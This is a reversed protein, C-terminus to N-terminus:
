RRRRHRLCQGARRWLRVSLYRQRKSRGDRGIRRRGGACRRARWFRDAPRRGRHRDAHARVDDLTWHVGGAFEFREVTRNGLGGTITLVDTGNGLDIILTDGDRRLILAEPDVTAGFVVRDITGNDVQEEIRDLNYEVGFAYSDGRTGGILVDDGHRGDLVNEQDMVGTLINDGRNGGEINLVQEVERITMTSGDYFRFLEVGQASSQFQNRVRLTDPRGAIGVVLDDGDRTFEINDRTIDGGLEVTDYVPDPVHRRDDWRAQERQDDIVDNGYGADFVYTDGGDRGVLTDDGARGDIKEAFNSGYIVESAASGILDIDEPNLDTHVMTGDAFIFEEVAFGQKFERVYQNELVREEGTSKLRIILDLATRDFEVDGFSINRLEVRDDGGSDLITDSGHLPQFVYIHGDGMGVLRDDGLGGDIFDAVDFGYVTDSGDTGALDVYHQLLKTWQWSTGDGFTIEEIRNIYGIFPFSELYDTLVVGDDTGRIMLRLTDSLFGYIADDGDTAGARLVLQMMREIDISAGGDFVFREIMFPSVYDFELSPDFEGLAGPMPNRMGWFQKEITLSDGTALGDTGLIEITLDDSDGERLFRMNSLRLGEGFYIYDVGGTLPGIAAQAATNWFDTEEGIVDQGGNANYFYYDGGAGGRMVDNGAGGRLVDASGSGIIVDNTDEERSVEMSIRFRDYITGDGFVIHNVGSDRRGSQMLPNLEGLFHDTVRVSKDQAVYSILLDQGDRELVVDDPTVGTLRLDDRQGSDYDTITDHGDLGGAFYADEGAGGTLTQNGGGLYIYDNGSTGAVSLDADDGPQRLRSEDLQMAYLVAALDLPSQTREFAPILNQIVFVKDARLSQGGDNGAGSPRYDPVVQAMIESWAQLYEVAGNYDDPMAGFIAEFVPVLEQDTTPRYLDYDSDYSLGQAFQSLGGQFAMRVAHGNAVTLYTPVVDQLLAIVKNIGSVYGDPGAVGTDEAPSVTYSLVGTAPNIHGSLMQPEFTFGSYALAFNLQGPTLIEVRWESDDTSNVEDLTDFDIQYNRLNYEQATGYKAQLELARDVNRAWVHFTGNADTIEVTYDTVIGGVQRVGIETVPVTNLPVHGFSEQRWQQGVAAPMSLVDQMTPAELISGQADLVPAGSALQWFGGAGDETWIARDLVVPAGDVEAVRVPTLERTAVQAYAWLTLTEGAQARLTRMDVATMADAAARAVEALELDNAMAVNLNVLNGFGRSQIQPAALVGIEGRFATFTESSDFVAGYMSSIRGDEFTVAGERLLRAKTPTVFDGMEQGWADLSTIGTESLSSLEGATVVGDQNLDRWVQLTDFAADAADIVGDGNGDHDRLEAFGSLGPGGFMETIDSILGDGNADLVLFGDDADLWGTREGFFDGDLDFYVETGDISSTEIGDGDLDIVLPDNEEGWKLAKAKLTAAGGLTLFHEIMPLMRTLGGPFGPIWAILDLLPNSKKFIMGMDGGANPNFTANGSVVAKLGSWARVSSDGDYGELFAVGWKSSTQEFNQFRMSSAASPAGGGWSEGGPGGAGQLRNIVFFDDGVQQYQIHPTFYDYFIQSKYTALSSVPIIADLLVNIAGFPLNQAGGVLPSDFYRLQDKDDPDLMTTGAAYWILDRGGTGSGDGAGMRTDGYIEGGASTNYIWDDGEGGVTLVKKGGMVVLWDDGEGGDLRSKLEGGATTSGDEAGGQAASIAAGKEFYGPNYFVLNDDGKGASVDVVASPGNADIWAGFNQRAESVAIQTISDGFDSGTIKEVSILTLPSQSDVTKFDPLYGTLEQGSILDFMANLDDPRYARAGGSTPRLAGNVMEIATTLGSFDVEDFDAETIAGPRFGGFDIVQPVQLWEDKVRALDAAESLTITEVDHFLDRFSEGSGGNRDKIGLLTFETDGIPKLKIETLELGSEALELDVGPNLLASYRCEDQEGDDLDGALLADYVQKASLGRQAGYFVDDLDDGATNKQKDGVFYDIVLDAGGGGFVIDQGGGEFPANEAAARVTLHVEEDHDGLLFVTNDNSGFVVQAVKASVFLSSTQDFVVNADRPHGGQRTVPEILRHEGRANDLSVQM